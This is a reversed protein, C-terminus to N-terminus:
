QAEEGSDALYNLNREKLAGRLKETWKLIADEPKEPAAANHALFLELARATSEGRDKSAKGGRSRAAVSGVGRARSVAASVSVLQTVAEIHVRFLGMLDAVFEPKCEWPLVEGREVKEIFVPEQGLVAAVDSRSLHVKNRVSEVWRGFTTKNEIQHVPTPNLEELIKQIYRKRVREIREASCEKAEALFADVTEDSLESDNFATALELLKIIEEDNM